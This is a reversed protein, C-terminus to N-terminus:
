NFYKLTKIFKAHGHELEAISRAIAMLDRGKPIVAESEYMELVTHVISANVPYATAPQLQLEPSNFDRSQIKGYVLSFLMSIGIRNLDAIEDLLSSARVDLVRRAMDLAPTFGRSQIQTSKCSLYYTRAKAFVREQNDTQALSDTQQEMISEILLQNSREMLALVDTNYDAYRAHFGGCSYRYFDNCPDVSADMWSRLREIGLLHPFDSTIVPQFSEDRKTLAVAVSLLLSLM